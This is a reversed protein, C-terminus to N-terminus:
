YLQAYRMVQNSRAAPKSVWLSSDEVRGFLAKSVRPDSFGSAASVDPEQERPFFAPRSAARARTALHKLAATLWRAARVSVGATAAPQNAPPFADPYDGFITANVSRFHISFYTTSCTDTSYFGFPKGCSGILYV